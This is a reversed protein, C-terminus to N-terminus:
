QPSALQDVTAHDLRHAVTAAFAPLSALLCDGGIALALGHVPPAFHDPKAVASAVGLPLHEAQTAVALSM